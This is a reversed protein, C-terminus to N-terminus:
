NLIIKNYFGLFTNIVEKVRRPLVIGSRHIIYITGTAPKFQKSQMLQKTQILDAACHEPLITVGLNGSVMALSAPIRNTNGTFNLKKTNLMRRRPFQTKFWVEFLSSFDPHNIFSLNEVKSETQKLEPSCLLIYNENCFNIKNVQPHDINRTIFGFDIEGNLVKQFVSDSDHMEVNLEIDPFEKKKIDLMMGFHPSMLCSEPMAYSVPGALTNTSISLSELFLEEEKYIAELYDKLKKGAKTIKLGGKQRLFLTTGLEGELKAIHQSIGSQTTGSKIAAKTFNLENAAIYFSKFSSRDFKFFFSNDIM